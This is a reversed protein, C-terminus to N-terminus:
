GHFSEKFIFVLLAVTGVMSLLSFLIALIMRLKYARALGQPGKWYRFAVYMSGLALGIPIVLTFWLCVMSILSFVMLLQALKDYRIQRPALAHMGKGSRRLELCSSCVTEDGLPLSCLSCLFRGCDDCLHEAKKDAHYFCTSDDLDAAVAEDSKQPRRYLAQFAFVSFKSRCSRCEQYAGGKKNYREVSLPYTCRPCKVSYRNM